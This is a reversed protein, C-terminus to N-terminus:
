EKGRTEICIAVGCHKCHVADRDHRMLGCTQCEHDVKGGPLTVARLLRLFLTLGLVMIVIALVRGWIGEMLIDGYGTTTLSTVTFYLADVFNDIGENVDKQQVYVLGAMMFIFVVLNTVRDFIRERAKLYASVRKLRRLLTFARIIRVARLLRLFAYNQTVLPAFMTFVVIMDAWNYVKGWYQTKPRAIYFRAALDVAIVSGIVYDWVPHSLGRDQFPAILFYGISVIDFVLLLLRFMYPGRGHGEYLWFLQRNLGKRESM